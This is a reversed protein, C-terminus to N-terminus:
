RFPGFYFKSNDNVSVGCKEFYFKWFRELRIPNTVQQTTLYIEISVNQKSLDFEKLKDWLNLKLITDPWNSSKQQDRFILKHELISSQCAELMDSIYIIKYQCNSCKERKIAKHILYIADIICTAGRKANSASDTEMKNFFADLKNKKNFYFESFKNASFDAEIIAEEKLTSAHIAYFIARSRDDYLAELIKKSYNKVKKFTSDNGNINTKSQQFISTSVDCLVFAVRKTETKEENRFDRCDFKNIVFLFVAIIGGILLRKM